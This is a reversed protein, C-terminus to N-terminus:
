IGQHGRTPFHFQNCDATQDPPAYIEIQTKLKKCFLRDWALLEDLHARKLGQSVGAQQIGLLDAIEQQSKGPHLLVESVLRATKPKWQDMIVLSLKLGVNIEEHWDPWPSRIGLTEKRDKLSELLEGSHVFASGNSETIRAATYQKDGIGIALRTDPAKHMRLGAKIRMMMLFAAAPDAIEVQFSDGRYIDWFQPNEGASALIEKLAGLWPGPDGFQRSDILDGTIVAVM